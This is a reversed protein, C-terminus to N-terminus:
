KKLSKKETGTKGEEKEPVIIAFINSKKILEELSSLSLKNKYSKLIKVYNRQGTKLNISSKKQLMLDTLDIWHNKKLDEHITNEM